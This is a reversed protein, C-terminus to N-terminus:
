PCPLCLGTGRLRGARSVSRRVRSLLGSAVAGAAARARLPRQGPGEPPVGGNRAGPCAPSDQRVWGQLFATSDAGLSLECLGVRGGLVDSQAPACPSTSPPLDPPPARLPRQGPVLAAGVDPPEPLVVDLPPGWLGNKPKGPGRLSGPRVPHSDENPRWPTGAVTSSVLENRGRPSM